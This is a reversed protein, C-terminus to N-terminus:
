PKRIGLKEMRARLTSRKLGLVEAASDKGSVKWNTEELVELIYNREMETLSKFQLQKKAPSPLLADALSLSSGTTTIVAREIVNELERVNGPWSYQQLTELVTMGMSTIVKGQKRSLKDVFYELLQPIDELRERLPPVTIPFVNLRYWLDQRFKGQRVDEELDRNTAAIIRVDVKSTRSSGLREFEGDQLVRLLKAQSEFPLEGIEDLFLSAGDATGFRGIQRTNAGTFAGKEHGFLESEILDTPLAACNITLMPRDKRLSQEHIARAILEKGTGTEGFILVSTDAAAIQEIKFLVYKLANSSGIIHKYNCTLNIEQRLCASEDELQNKYKKIEALALRLEQEVKKRETIDRNSSRFGLVEGQSGVVPQCAHEIWCLSGDKRKIRFQVERLAYEEHVDHKHDDWIKKDEPVIIDRFLDPDQMFQDAMFGTIRECSPSVYRFTSDLNTWLEWDYTFNAVTRYMLELKRLSEEAKKRDTIDRILGIFGLTQGTENKLATGITESPFITGDKKRYAVEYPQLKEEANLHFRIKGQQEYEEQSAYLIDTTKGLLEQEQYGFIKELAPNVMVIKRERDAFVVADAIASFICQFRSTDQKSASLKKQLLNITEQANM